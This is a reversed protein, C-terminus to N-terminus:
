ENGKADLIAADAKDSTERLYTNIDKGEEIFEMRDIINGVEEYASLKEPGATDQLNFVAQMNKEKLGEVETSFAEQIEEDNLVTAFGKKSRMMQWEDSLLYALVEFAEQKHESTEAIALGGANAKPGKDPRDEWVPYTVMDWDLGTDKEVNSLWIHVDFLPVMALNQDNMFGGWDQDEVIVGPISAIDEVKSLYSAFREDKGYLSADTEPDVHNLELQSLMGGAASLDIGRYETGNLEGTVSKALASVEDWTMGDTPYEIGFQDFIKKNYYLVEWRKVYPFYTLKGDGWGRVMELHAQSLRSLDFDNEEVLPDLDYVLEFDELVEVEDGGSLYLIDPINSKAIEEEVEDLAMEAFELTIHPFKEEIPEKIDEIFEDEWGYNFKLTVAEKEEKGKEPENKPADDKKGDDEQNCAGLFLLSGILLISFAIIKSMKRM